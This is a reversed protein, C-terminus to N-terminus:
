FSESSRKMRMCLETAFSGPILVTKKKGKREKQGSGRRKGWIGRYM